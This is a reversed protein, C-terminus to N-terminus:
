TSLSTLGGSRAPLPRAIPKRVSLGLRKWVHRTVREVLGTLDPAAEMREVQGDEAPTTARAQRTREAKQWMERQQTKVFGYRIMPDNLM